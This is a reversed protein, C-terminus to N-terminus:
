VSKSEYALIHKLITNCVERLPFMIIYSSRVCNRTLMVKVLKQSLHKM